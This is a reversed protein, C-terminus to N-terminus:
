YRNGGLDGDRWLKGTAYHNAWEVYEKDRFTNIITANEEGKECILVDSVPIDNLIHESHTSIIYQSSPDTVKIANIVEAVMDPHLGVEPEDICILAGRQPNYIISLLCLFRLTGDSIHTVHVAKDLGKEDLLLEFNNGVFNFDFGNYQPNIAHLSSAIKTFDNKHNIKIRNLIQPLNSGDPFLRHAGSPLMPKRIASKATTDFYNYVVIDKIAERLTYIQFYRDKDVLQCLLSESTNELDYQVTFQESSLGERAYGKGNKMSLYLYARKGNPLKTHFSEFISYNQTSGVKKFSICYYVPEKFHYGYRGIATEDFQFELEVIASEKRQTGAFCMADFGGWQNLILDSLDGETITAKLVRLAKIFNSKGVGNIGVLVNLNNLSIINKKFSFFNKLCISKIM